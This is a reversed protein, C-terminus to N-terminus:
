RGLFRSSQSYISGSSSVHIADYSIASIDIFLVFIATFLVILVLQLLVVHSQLPLLDSAAICWMEPQLLVIMSAAFIRGYLSCLCWMVTQLPVPDSATIYM